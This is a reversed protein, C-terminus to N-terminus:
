IIGAEKKFLELWQANDAPTQNWPDDSNV